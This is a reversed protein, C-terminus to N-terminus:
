VLHYHSKHTIHNPILNDKINSIAKAITIDPHELIIGVVYLGEGILKGESDNSAGCYV